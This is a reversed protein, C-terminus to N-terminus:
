HAGKSAPTSSPHSTTWAAAVLLDLRGYRKIACYKVPLGPHMGCWRKLRKTSRRGTHEVAKAAEASPDPHLLQRGVCCSASRGSRLSTFGHCTGGDRAQWRSPPVLMRRM